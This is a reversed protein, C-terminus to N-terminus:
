YEDAFMLDALELHSGHYPADYSAGGPVYSIATAEAESVLATAVVPEFVPESLSLRLEAPASVHQTDSMLPTAVITPVVPAPAQALVPLVPAPTVAIQAESAAVDRMFEIRDGTAARTIEMSAATSALAGRIDTVEETTLPVPYAPLQGAITNAADAGASSAVSTGIMGGFGAPSFAAVALVTAAVGTIGSKVVADRVEREFPSITDSSM